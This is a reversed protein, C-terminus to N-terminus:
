ECWGEKSWISLEGGASASARLGKKTDALVGADRDSYFGDGDLTKYAGASGEMEFVTVGAVGSVNAYAGASTGSVNHGVDRLAREQAANAGNSDYTIGGGAGTGYRFRLYAGGSTPSQGVAISYVSGPTSWEFALEWLGLPDVATTPRANVYAYTNLGGKLGIPDSTIYRGTAADYYRHHNYWLGSEADFYQGPLVAM